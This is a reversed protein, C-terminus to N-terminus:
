KIENKKNDWEERNCKELSLLHGNIDFPIDDIKCLLDRNHHEKAFEALLANCDEVSVIATLKLIFSKYYKSSDYAHQFGIINEIPITSPLHNGGMEIDEITVPREENNLYLDKDHALLYAEQGFLDKFLAFLYLHRVSLDRSRYTTPFCPAVYIDFMNDIVLHKLSLVGDWNSWFERASKTLDTNSGYNLFLEKIAFLECDAREQMQQPAEGDEFDYDYGDEDTTGDNKLSLSEAIMTLSEKSIDILSSSQIDYYKRTTVLIIKSM